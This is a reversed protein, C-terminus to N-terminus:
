ALSPPAHSRFAPGLCVEPTFVRERLRAHRFVSATPPVIQADFALTVLPSAHIVSLTPPMVKLATAGLLATKLTDCPACNSPCAPKAPASSHEKNCRDSCTDKAPNDRGIAPTDSATCFGLATLWVVLTAAATLRLFPRLQRHPGRM